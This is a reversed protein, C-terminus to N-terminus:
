YGSSARSGAASTIATGSGDVVYWKGGIGQGNVDGAASDDAYRYLPHGDLTVQQAGDGRTTVALAGTVGDGATAPGALPPWAAACGGTCTSDTGTDPTFLYLTRGDGDVVIPGLSSDAVKVVTGASAPAAGGSVSGTTSAAESGSSAGSASTGSSSGCAAAALALGAILTAVHHRRM